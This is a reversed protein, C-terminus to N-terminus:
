HYEVKGEATRIPVKRMWLQAEWWKRNETYWAITRALGEDFSVKSEFDLLKRAKTTEATHRRVQGPRDGIFRRADAPRKMTALVRTAIENTSVDSGTGINIVEGVVKPAPAHIALDIARCTEEVYIFDRRAEGDGHVHLEEGMLSNTVFRPIVKELHQRPGYNNFPRLIM